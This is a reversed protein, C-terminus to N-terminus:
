LDFLLFAPLTIIQLKSFTSNLRPYHVINSFDALHTLAPILPYDFIRIRKIEMAMLREIIVITKKNDILRIAIMRIIIVIVIQKKTIMRIVIIKRIM